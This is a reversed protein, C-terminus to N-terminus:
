SIENDGVGMANNVDNLISKYLDEDKEVAAIMNERGQWKQEGYNYWSGGKEIIMIEEAINIVDFVKNFGKGFYNPIIAKKYPTGLPTTKVIVQVNVGIQEEASNTINGKPFAKKLEIDTSMQHMWHKGGPSYTGGSGGMGQKERIHNLMLLTSNTIPVAEANRRSFKGLMKALEGRQQDSMTNSMELEGVLGGVSDIIHLCGQDGRLTKELIDLYDTGSLIKKDTSKVLNFRSLDIENITQLLYKNFRGEVNYYYARKDPFQRLFDAAIEFALTTKGIKPAGAVQVMQGVMLGGGLAMNLSPLTKILPIDRSIEEEVPVICSTGYDKQLKKLTKSDLLINEEVEENKKSKAM